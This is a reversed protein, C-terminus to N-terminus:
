QRFQWLDNLRGDGGGSVRGNGGFLWIATSIVLLASQLSTWAFYHNKM